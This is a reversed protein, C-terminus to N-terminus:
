NRSNRECSSVFELMGYVTRAKGMARAAFSADNGERGDDISAGTLVDRLADKSRLLLALLEDYPLGQSRADRRAALVFFFYVVVAWLGTWVVDFGIDISSMGHEYGDFVVDGLSLGVVVIMAETVTICRNKM